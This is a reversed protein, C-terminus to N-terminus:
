FFTPIYFKKRKSGASRGKKESAEGYDVFGGPLAWGPPPNKREILVITSDALEVIIDVTLLPNSYKEAMLHNRGQSGYFRLTSLFNRCTGTARPPATQYSALSM